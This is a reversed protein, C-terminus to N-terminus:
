GRWGRKCSFRGPPQANWRPSCSRGNEVVQVNTRSVATLHFESVPPLSEPAACGRLHVALPALLAPDEAAFRVANGGFQIHVAASV